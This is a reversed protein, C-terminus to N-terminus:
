VRLIKIPTRSLLCCRTQRQIITNGTTKLTSILHTRFQLVMDMKMMRTLATSEEKRLKTAKNTEPSEEPLIILVTKTNNILKIMTIEKRTILVRSELMAERRIIISRLLVEKILWLISVWFRLKVVTSAVKTIISALMKVRNNKM